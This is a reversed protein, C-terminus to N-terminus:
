KMLFLARRLPRIRSLLATLLWSGLLSVALLYLVYVSYLDSARFAFRIQYPSGALTLISNINPIVMAALFVVISPVLFVRLSYTEMAAAFVPITLYLALIMPIYWLSDFTVQDVFLLTKVMGSLLEPFPKEYAEPTYWSLHLWYMIGMWIESTLLIGGANRLYFRKLAERDSFSRGLLLSGTIMLFLPVGLHSAVTLSAKVSASLLSRSYFEEMQGHYNDYARNVAHNLAVLVIAAARAADLFFIRGSTTRSSM